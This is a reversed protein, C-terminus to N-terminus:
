CLADFINRESRLSLSYRSICIICHIFGLLVCQDVRSSLTAATVHARVSKRSAKVGTESGGGAHKTKAIQKAGELAHIATIRRARTMHVIHAGMLRRSEIRMAADAWGESDLGPTARRGIVTRFFWVLVLM